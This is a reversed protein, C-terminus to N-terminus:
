LSPKRPRLFDYFFFGLPCYAKKNVQTNYVRCLFPEDMAGDCFVYFNVIGASLM